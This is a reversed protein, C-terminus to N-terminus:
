LEIEIGDLIKHIYFGNLRQCVVYFSFLLRILITEENECHM